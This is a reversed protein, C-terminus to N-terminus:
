GSTTEDVQPPAGYSSGSQVELHVLVEDVNCLTVDNMFSM